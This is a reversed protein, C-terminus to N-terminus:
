KSLLRASDVLEGDVSFFSLVLEDADADFVVVGYQDNFRAISGDIPLGFSYISAGGLGSVVYTLGAISLREYCHDHGALVLDAGWEGYPWQMDLTSGHPGSSFPPHHMAVVNFASSSRALGDKLWAAQKSSASIGDPEHEDSDVAFFHVDGRVIDYYRENGPLTFYDLYPQAGSTVWDHNGLAPFFRNESASSAYNGLYPHILESFYQGINEDITSASGAPYNNDGTTIVYDPHLATVLEAVQQEAPGSRGYDGMAVFRVKSLPQPTFSGGGAGPGPEDADAGADAPPRPRESATAPAMVAPHAVRRAEVDPSPAPEGRETCGSGGLLGVLLAALRYALGSASRQFTM